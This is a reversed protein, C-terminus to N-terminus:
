LNNQEFFYYLIKAFCEVKKGVQELDQRGSKKATRTFFILRDAWNEKVRGIYKSGRWLGNGLFDAIVGYYADPDKDQTQGHVAGEVIFLQKECSAADYLEQSMEVAIM